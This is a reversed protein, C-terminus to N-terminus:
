TQKTWPQPTLSGIRGECSDSIKKFTVTKGKAQMRYTGIQAAPCAWSGSRDTFLIRNGKVTYDGEVKLESKLNGRFHGGELTLTFDKAVYTGAAPDAAFAASACITLTAAAILSIALTSTTKM